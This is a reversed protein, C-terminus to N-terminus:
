LLGPLINQLLSLIIVCALITVGCVTGGVTWGQFTKKLSFKSFRNVVWFGSDNPLSIGVGGACVALGVLVPSLTGLGAVIPAMISSGTVLAVTASGQAARLIQSIAWAIVILAIGAGASTWGSMKDVLAAGIGTGNIVAGFSGGAGTILFIIGSQAASETIVKELSKGNLYKRLALFAVVAGIMLAMNKDGIFGFFQGLYGETVFQSGITGVLLLLIPFFILAIGLGGSPKKVDSATTEAAAFEEEFDNAFDTANAGRSGIFKAYFVGAVVVGVLSVIMGYVFFAAINAGMTNAVALPGPTPIVMCHTTILGVALSCVLTTFPVKGKRSLQKVLNILIVFAADFFVPISVIYGTLTVALPTNKEGTMRLMLAAIQETCGSEHLINGLVIGWVIIIGVGGLTSGFGSAITSATTKLGLGGILGMILSGLILAFFPHMKLAIIAILVFALAVAFGILLTSLPM